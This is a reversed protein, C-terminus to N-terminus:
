KAATLMAAMEISMKELEELKDMDCLGNLDVIGKTIALYNDINYLIAAVSARLLHVGEVTATLEALERPTLQQKM